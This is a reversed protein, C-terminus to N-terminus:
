PRVQVSFRFHWKVLIEDKTACSTTVIAVKMKTCSIDTMKALKKECFTLKRQLWRRFNQGFIECLIKFGHVPHM